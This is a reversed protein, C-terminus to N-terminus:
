KVKIAIIYIYGKWVKIEYNEVGINDFWVSDNIKIYKEDFEEKVSELFHESYFLRQCYLYGKGKSYDPNGNLFDVFDTYRAVSNSAGIFLVKAKEYLEKLALFDVKKSYDISMKIFEGNKGIKSAYRYTEASRNLIIILEELIKFYRTFENKEDNDLKLKKHLRSYVINFEKALKSLEHCKILETMSKFKTLNKSENYEVFFKINEKLALEIGHSMVSLIPMSIVDFRQKTAPYYEFIFDVLSEYQGWIQANNSAFGVYAVYRDKEGLNM